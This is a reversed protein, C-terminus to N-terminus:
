PASAVTEWTSGTYVCLKNLTTDFVMMGKYPSAVAAKVASTAQPVSVVGGGPMLELVGITANHRMLETTTSWLRLAKTVDDGTVHLRIRGPYTGPQSPAIDLAGFKGDYSLNLYESVKSVDNIPTNAGTIPDTGVSSYNVLNCGLIRLALPWAGSANIIKVAYGTGTGAVWCNDLTNFYGGDIVVADTGHSADKSLYADAVTLSNCGVLMLESTHGAVAGAGNQELNPAMITGNCGTFKMGNGQNSGAFCGKMTSESVSKFNFGDGGCNSAFCEDFGSTTMVTGGTSEVFFGHSQTSQIGINSFQGQVVNNIRLGSVFGYTNGLIALDSFQPAYAQAPNGPLLHIASGTCPNLVTNGSKITMSRIQLPQGLSTAWLTNDATFLDGTGTSLITTNGKSAGLLLIGSPLSIASSTMYTGNPFFV